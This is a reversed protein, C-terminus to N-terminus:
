NEVSAAKYGLIYDKEEPNVLFKNSVHKHKPDNRAWSPTTGKASSIGYHVTTKM